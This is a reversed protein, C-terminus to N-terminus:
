IRRAVEAAEWIAVQANTESALRAAGILYCKEVQQHIQDYLHSNPVQGIAFIVKNASVFTEKGNRTITHVGDPTVSRYQIQTLMRVGRNELLQILAWRTTPGLKEGIRKGRRM